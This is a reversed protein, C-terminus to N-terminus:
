DHEFQVTAAVSWGVPLPPVRAEAALRARTATPACVTMYIEYQRSHFTTWGAEGTPSQRARRAASRVVAFWGDLNSASWTAGLEKALSAVLEDWEPRRRDDTQGVSPAPPALGVTAQWTADPDADTRDKWEEDPARRRVPAALGDRPWPPRSESEFGIAYAPGYGVRVVIRAARERAWALAEELSVDEFSDWIRNGKELHGSFRGTLFHDVDSGTFVSDEDEAIFVTGPRTRASRSRPM